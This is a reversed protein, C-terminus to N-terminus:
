LVADTNLAAKISSAKTGDAEAPQSIAGAAERGQGLRLITNGSRWEAPEPPLPLAPACRARWPSSEGACLPERVESRGAGWGGPSGQTAVSVLEKSPAWPERAVETLLFLEGGGAGRGLVCGPVSRAVPRNIVTFATWHLFPCSVFGCLSLESLFSTRHTHRHTKM